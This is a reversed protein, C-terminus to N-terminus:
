LRADWYGCFPDVPSVGRFASKGVLKSVVARIVEPSSTYANVFTSIRPVDQLHYPNDISVFLTPIEHTFKPCDAGMPQAWILRVVTQNSATKVSALYIILDYKRKFESIAMERLEATKEADSYDFGTVDFGEDALYGAFMPGATGGTQDLYGGRDGLVYLLVRKHRDPRIPLLKQTDKVLTVSKDACEETWQRHESSGLASLAEEPPILTGAQKKKHLGLSAKLALIRTVAEDLREETLIKRRLGNRMFELDEQLNATFLIMDNGAAICSPVALERPMLATFGVMRTADTVILGNFGLRKRLLDQLLEPSLSGTMIKEDAIGPVLLKSYAPQMIHGSMVAKMGQDILSRYVRGYTAEWEDVSLGNVSALLHQDRGDVGDGPWHKITAALGCEQVAAGYAGAMKTVTEPNSGYTRTNTIPNQFNFNIDVVPAFAWNCGVAAAERGCVLGLRRAQLVEGSAAVQMPSAFLTGEHVLGEGGRELNAALLLPLDSHDQLFQHCCRIQAAAAPRFMYGGPKVQELVAALDSIETTDGLLCFLQGIKAEIDLGALTDKVWKEAEADLWFPKARLEVM